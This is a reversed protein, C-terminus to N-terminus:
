KRSLSEHYRERIKLATVMLDAIGEKEMCLRRKYDLPSEQPGKAPAVPLHIEAVAKLINSDGAISEDIIFTRGMQTYSWVKWNSTNM